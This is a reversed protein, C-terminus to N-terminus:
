TSATSTRRSARRCTRRGGVLPVSAAACRAPARPAWAQAPVLAHRVPRVRRVADATTGAFREGIKVCSPTRTRVPQADHRRVAARRVVARRRCIAACVAGGAVRMPTRVLRDSRGRGRGGLALAVPSAIALAKGEAWPWDSLRLIAAAPSCCAATPSCPGCGRREVRARSRGPRASRRRDRDAGDDAGMSTPDVRFDKAPWIGPVQRLRSRRSCTARAARRRDARRRRAGQRVPGAQRAPDARRRRRRRRALVAPVLRDKGRVVAAGAAICSRRGARGLDRGAASLASVLGGVCVALPVVGRAIPLAARGRTAEITWPVLAAITAALAATWVEKIGGWLAYGYLLASAPPSRARRRVRWRADPALPRIILEIAPALLAGLVAIYPMWLWM